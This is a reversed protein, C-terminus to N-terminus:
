TNTTKSCEINYPRVESTDSCSVLLEGVSKGSFGPVVWANGIDSLPILAFRRLQLKPHPIVLGNERYELEDYLLIDIDMYRDAYRQSEVRQRSDFEEEIGKCISLLTPPAYETRVLVAQNLFNRSSEMGWPETEYVKSVKEVVGVRSKIMALASALCMSRNGMNGGLLLVAHHETNEAASVMDAM